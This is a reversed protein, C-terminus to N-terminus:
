NRGRGDDVMDAVVDDADGIYNETVFKIIREDGKIVDLVTNIM